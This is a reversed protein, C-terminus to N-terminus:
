AMIRVDTNLATKSVPCVYFSIYIVFFIEHSACFHRSGGAMEENKKKM